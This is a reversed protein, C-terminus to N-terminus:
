KITVQIEQIAKDVDPSVLGAVCGFIAELATQTQQRTIYGSEYNATLNLLTEVTKRELEAGIDIEM